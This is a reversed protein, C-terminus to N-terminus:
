REISLILLFKKVLGHTRQTLETIFGNKQISITLGTGSEIPMFKQPAAEGAMEAKLVSAAHVSKSGAASNIYLM